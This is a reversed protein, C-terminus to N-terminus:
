ELYFCRAKYCGRFPLVLPTGDKAQCRYWDESRFMGTRVFTTPGFCLVGGEPLKELWDIEVNPLPPITPWSGYEVFPIEVLETDTAPPTLVVVQEKCGIVLAVLVVFLAINRM